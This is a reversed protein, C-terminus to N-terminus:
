RPGRSTGEGRVSADCPLQFFHMPFLCLGLSAVTEWSFKVNACRCHTLGSWTHLAHHVWAEFNPTLSSDPHSKSSTTSPLDGM